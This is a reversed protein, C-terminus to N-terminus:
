PAFLSANSRQQTAKQLSYMSESALAKLWPESMSHHRNSILAARFGAVSIGVLEYDTPLDPRIILLDLFEEAVELRQKIKLPALSAHSHVLDSFNEM